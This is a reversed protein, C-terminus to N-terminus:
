DVKWLSSVPSVSVGAPQTPPQPVRGAYPQPPKGQRYQYLQQELDARQAAFYFTLLLFLLTLVGLAITSVLLATNTKNAEEEVPPDRLALQQLDRLMAADRKSDDLMRTALEDRANLPKAPGIRPVGQGAAIPRCECDYDRGDFGQHSPPISHHKAEVDLRVRGSMIEDYQRDTVYALMYPRGTHASTAVCIFKYGRFPTACTECNTGVWGMRCQCEKDFSRQVGHGSCDSLDCYPGTFGPSCACAGTVGDCRGHGHCNVGECLDIAGALGALALLLLLLALSKM